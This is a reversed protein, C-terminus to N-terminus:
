VCIKSNNKIELVNVIRHIGSMQFVKNIKPKVNIIEMVGGCAAVVKYRGIVLGIGASDMFSVKQFDLIVKKPIFRQIEYDLRKRIKESSHHDIEETFEVFIIKEEIFHKINMLIEKGKYVLINNLLFVIIEKSSFASTKDFVVNESSM